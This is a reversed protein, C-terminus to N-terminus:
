VNKVISKLRVAFNALDAFSNYLPVPTVRIVDPGRFDIRVDTRELARCVIRGDISPKMRLSLQCGRHAFDRPSVLKVQDALADDLFDILLGTLLESKARLPAIGGARSFIELASRIAAMSLIPPNSVQWGEATPIAHFVNNM